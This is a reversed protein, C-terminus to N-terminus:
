GPGYGPAPYTGGNYHMLTRVEGLYQVEGEEEGEVHRGKRRGEV